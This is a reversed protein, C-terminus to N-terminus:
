VTKALKLTRNAGNGEEVVLGSKVLGDLEKVLVRAPLCLTDSLKRPKRVSHKRLVRIIGEQNKTLTAKTESSAAQKEDVGELVKIWNRLHYGRNQNSVVDDNGCEIGAEDRIRERCDRRFDAIAEAVAGPRELKLRNAIDKASFCRYHGRATQERLVELVRRKVSSNKGGCVRIGCLEARDEFFALDGGKFPTHQAPAVEIGSNAAGRALLAERISNELPNERGFPKGIFDTAGLKMTEVSLRHSELGHGTIVIVPIRSHGPMKRIQRLLNHGYVVDPRGGDSRSPIELDLVVYDFAYGELLEVAEAQSRAKRCQHGMSVLREELLDLLTQDDEIVLAVTM